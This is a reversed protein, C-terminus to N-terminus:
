GVSEVAERCLKVLAEASSTWSYQRARDLGKERLASAADADGLVERLVNYLGYVDTPEFFLASDALVEPMASASSSVVPCGLQMAELPPIGFGEYLSPFVFCSAKQYLAKLEADSVYGATIITGTSMAEKAFVQDNARGAIVLPPLAKGYLRILEGLLRLNKHKARTAVALIYSKSRLGLRDLVTDDANVRRMHEASNPIVRIKRQDGGYCQV